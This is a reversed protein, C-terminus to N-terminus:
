SLGKIYAHSPSYNGNYAHAHVRFFFKFKMYTHRSRYGNVNEALAHCKARWMVSTLYPLRGETNLNKDLSPYQTTSPNSYGDKMGPYSHFWEEGIAKCLPCKPNVTCCIRHVSGTPFENAYRCGQEWAEMFCGRNVTCDGRHAPNTDLTDPSTDPAFRLCALM